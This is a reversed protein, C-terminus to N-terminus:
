VPVLEFKSKQAQNPVKSGKQLDKSETNIYASPFFSGSVLHVSVSLSACILLTARISSMRSRHFSSEMKMNLVTFFSMDLKGDKASKGIISDLKRIEGSNLLSALLERGDKLKTDLINQLCTGVKVMQKAFEESEDDTDEEVVKWEKKEAALQLAVVLRPHMTDLNATLTNELATTDGSCTNYISTIFSKDEKTLTPTERTQSAELETADLAVSTEKDDATLKLQMTSSQLTNGLQQHQNSYHRADSTHKRQSCKTSSSVSSFSEVAVWSSLLLLVVGFCYM